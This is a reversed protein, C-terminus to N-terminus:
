RLLEGGRGAGTAELADALAETLSMRRSESMQARLAEGYLPHALRVVPGEARQDLSLLGRHVCAETVEGDVVRQLAAIDIPEGVAAAELVGRTSSDEDDLHARILEILRESTELQGDLHWLGRDKVLRGSRRAADILEQLYLLNAASAEWAQQVLYGSVSGGLGAELLRKVETRSLPELRVREALREKWLATIPEPAGGGDRVTMVVAVRDTGSALQFTLLASAEDLLHADDVGLILRRREARDVIAQRAALLIDISDRAAVGVNTNLIPLLPAFAGFPIRSGSNSGVVWATAWGHAGRDKLLEQALRTKGVGARGALVVAGTGAVADKAAKLEHRRGVM